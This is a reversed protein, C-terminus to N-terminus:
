DDMMSLSIGQNTDLRQPFEQPISVQQQPFLDV